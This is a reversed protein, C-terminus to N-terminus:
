FFRIALRVSANTLAGAEATGFLRLFSLTKLGSTATLRRGCNM